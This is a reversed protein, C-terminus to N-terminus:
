SQLHRDTSPDMRRFRRIAFLVGLGSLLLAVTGPEPVDSIFNYNAGASNSGPLGPAPAWFAGNNGEPGIENILIANPAFPLGSDALADAPDATSVDSYFILVSQNGGAPDFFRIIDSARQTPDNPEVLGVDGPVVSFPLSYILVPSTTVGGSPDLGVTFPLPTGNFNGNGNEDFTFLAQGFLTTASAVLTLGSIILAKTSLKM